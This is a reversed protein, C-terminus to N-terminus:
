FFIYSQTLVTESFVLNEFRSVPVRRRGGTCLWIKTNPRVKFFIVQVFSCPKIYLSVSSPFERSMSKCLSCDQPLHIVQFNGLSQWYGWTKLSPSLFSKVHIASPVAPVGLVSHHDSSCFGAWLTQGVLPSPLPSVSLRIYWPVQQGSAGGGGGGM